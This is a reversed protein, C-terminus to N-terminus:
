GTQLKVLPLGEGVTAVALHVGGSTKCFTIEQNRGPSAVAPSTLNAEAMISGLTEASILDGCFLFGKRAVTRIFTQKEGNDGIAHRAANM